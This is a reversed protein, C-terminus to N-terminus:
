FDFQIVWCIESNFYGIIPNFGKSVYFYTVCFLNIKFVLTAYSQICKKHDLFKDIWNIVKKELLDSVM